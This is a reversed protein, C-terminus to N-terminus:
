YSNYWLSCTRTLRCITVRQIHTRWRPYAWWFNLLGFGTRIIILSFFHFWKHTVLSACAATTHHLSRRACTWIFDVNNHHCFYEIHHRACMKVRLRSRANVIWTWNTVTVGDFARDHVCYYACIAPCCIYINWVEIMEVLYDGLQFGSNHSHHTMGNPMYKFPNIILSVRRLPLRSIGHM